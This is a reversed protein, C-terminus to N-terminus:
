DAPPHWGARIWRQRAAVLESRNLRLAVVTARGTPTKGVIEDGVSSWCFHESWVHRRPNFLRVIERTAPDLAAIRSGKHDNCMSCASWLNERITLGGLSEPTIHDIEMPTGTIGSPTLCYGCRHRAEALVIERLARPVHSHSMGFSSRSM